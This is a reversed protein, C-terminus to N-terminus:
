QGSAHGRSSLECVGLRWERHSVLSADCCIEGSAALITLMVLRIRDNMHLHSKWPQCPIVLMSCPSRPLCLLSVFPGERPKASVSPMPIHTNWLNASGRRRAQGLLRTWRSPVTITSKAPKAKEQYQTDRNKAAVVRRPSERFHAWSAPDLGKPHKTNRTGQPIENQISIITKKTNYRPM